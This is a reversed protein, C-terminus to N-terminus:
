TASASRRPQVGFLGDTGPDDGHNAPVRGEAAAAHLPLGPRRARLFKVPLNERGATSMEMASMLFCGDGVIVAVPRGPMVKRRGSRRQSRGAWRRTQRDPQLLDAAETVEFAEAALHETITV